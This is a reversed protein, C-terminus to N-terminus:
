GYVKEEVLTDTERTDSTPGQLFSLSFAGVESQFILRAVYDDDSLRPTPDGSFVEPVSLISKQPLLAKVNGGIVNAIEGLADRADDDFFVPGANRMLRRTFEIAQDFSCQISLAADSAGEFRVIAAVENSVPLPEDCAIVEMRLMTHFVDVTIQSLLERYNIVSLM